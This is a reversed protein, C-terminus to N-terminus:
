GKRFAATIRETIAHAFQEEMVRPGSVYEEVAKQVTREIFEANGQDVVTALKHMDAEINKLERASSSEDHLYFNTIAMLALVVFEISISALIWSPRSASIFRLGRLGIAVILLAAGGYAIGSVSNSFRPSFYQSMFLRLAPVFGIRHERWARAAQVQELANFVGSSFHERVRQMLYARCQVMYGKPVSGFEAIGENPPEAQTSTQGSSHSVTQMAIREWVQHFAATVLEPQSESKRELERDPATMVDITAASLGSELALRLRTQEIERETLASMFGLKPSLTFTVLLAAGLAILLSVFAFAEPRLYVAEEGIKPSKVLWEKAAKAYGHQERTRPLNTFDVIYEGNIYSRQVEAGHFNVGDPTATATVGRFAVIAGEDPKLQTLALKEITQPVVGFYLGSGFLVTLLALIVYHQPKARHAANLSPLAYM